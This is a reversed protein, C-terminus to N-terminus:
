GRASSLISYVASVSTFEEFFLVGDVLIQLIIKTSPTKNKKLSFM